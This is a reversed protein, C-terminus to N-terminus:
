LLLGLLLLIIGVTLNFLTEVLLKKWKFRKENLPLNMYDNFGFVLGAIIGFPYFAIMLSFFDTLLISILNAYSAYYVVIVLIPLSIILSLFTFNMIFFFDINEKSRKTIIYLIIMGILFAIFYKLLFFPYLIIVGLYFAPLPWPGLQDFIIVLLM